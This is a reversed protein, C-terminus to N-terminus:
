RVHAVFVADCHGRRYQRDSLEESELTWVACVTVVAM